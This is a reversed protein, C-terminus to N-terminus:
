AFHEIEIEEIIEKTLPKTKVALPLRFASAKEAIGESAQSSTLMVIVAGQLENDLSQYQELFEWGDMGPMNIDLLILDPATYDEFSKFTLYAIADSASEKSIVTHAFDNKMIVREHIFNDDPNDDILM